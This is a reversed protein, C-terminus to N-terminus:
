LCVYLCIIANYPLIVKEILRDGLTAGIGALAKVPKDGMPETTFDRMKQSTSMKLATKSFLTQHQQSTEFSEFYM